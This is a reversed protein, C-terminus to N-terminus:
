GFNQSPIFQLSGLQLYGLVGRFLLLSLLDLNQRVVTEEQNLQELFGRLVHLM